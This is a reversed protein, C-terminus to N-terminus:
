NNQNNNENLLEIKELEKAILKDSRDVFENYRNSLVEYDHSAVDDIYGHRLSTTSGSMIKLFEKDKDTERPFIESTLPTFYECLEFLFQLSYQHPTYGLFLRILGLCTQEVVLRMLYLHIKTAGGGDMCEAEQLFSATRIRQHLYIKASPYHRSPVKNFPLYPPNTSEKFLLQAREMIQHFFYQQDGEKQRLSKKSHMVVTATCRGNTHEKIMYSLNGPIDAQYEKVILFLYYHTTQFEAEHADLVCGTASRSSHKEGFCYLASVAVAQTIINTIAQLPDNDAIMVLPAKARGLEYQCRKRCESFLRAVEMRIWEKKAVVADVHGQSFTTAGTGNRVAACSDNLADLLAKEEEKDVDFLRGLANSFLAIRAQHVGLDDNAIWEGGLFWEAAKFLWMINQHLQFMAQLYDGNKRYYKVNLGSSFAAHDEMRYAAKAEKLFRKPKLKAALGIETSDATSYVLTNHNCHIAFFPNGEKLSDEMWSGDFIRFTFEPFDQFVKWYQETLEYWCYPSDDSIMVIIIGENVGEELHPSFYITNAMSFSLLLEVAKELPAHQPHYHQMLINHYM